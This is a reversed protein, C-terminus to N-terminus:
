HLEMRMVLKMHVRMGVPPKFIDERCIRPNLNGLLMKMQYKPLQKFVRELKGYFSDELDDGTDETPVLVIVACWCSIVVIYLV